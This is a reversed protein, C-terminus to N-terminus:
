RITRECTMAATGATAPAGEPVPRAGRDPPWTGVVAHGRRWRVLPVPCALSRAGGSRRCAAPYPHRRGLRGRPQMAGGRAPRDGGDVSATRGAQRFHSDRARVGDLTRAHGIPRFPTLTGHSLRRRPTFIPYLRVTDAPAPSDRRNASLRPHANGFRELPAIRMRNRWSADRHQHGHPGAYLSPAACTGWHQTPRMGGRSRQWTM